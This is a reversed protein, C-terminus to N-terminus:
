TLELLRDGVLERRWGRFVRGGADGLMAAALEKRPAIVEAAIGLEASVRSVEAQM